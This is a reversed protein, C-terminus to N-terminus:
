ACGKGVVTSDESTFETWHRWGQPCAFGWERFRPGTVFLTWVPWEEGTYAGRHLEVRHLAKAPRFYLHGPDRYHVGTPTYEVYKGDLLLSMNWWPHDHLARDDDSRLFQHLYINFFRNRPIIWWRKLYPDEAGGIIVDPPRKDPGLSKLFKLIKGTKM